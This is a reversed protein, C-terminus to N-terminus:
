VTLAPARRVKSACSRVMAHAAASRACSTNTATKESGEGLSMSASMEFSFACGIATDMVGTRLSPVFFGVFSGECHCRLCGIAAFVCGWAGAGDGCAPFVRSAMGLVLAEVAVGTTSAPLVSGAVM